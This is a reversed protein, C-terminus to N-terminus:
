WHSPSPLGDRVARAYPRSSHVKSGFKNGFIAAKIHRVLMCYGADNIHLVDSETRTDHLHAKLLGQNDVFSSLGNVIKVKLGCINLDTRLLANFKFVRDNISGDRTPLVPCVFLNVRPNLRQIEELKGKYVRYTGEVNCDDSKLNNTGCMTVVNRFSAAKLPVIDEVKAAWDKMGPTCRGITGWGDGFKIRGFNSDGM